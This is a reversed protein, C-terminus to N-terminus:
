RKHAEISEVYTLMELQEVSIVEGCSCVDKYIKCAQHLSEDKVRFLIKFKKMLWKIRM